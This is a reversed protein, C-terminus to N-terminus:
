NTYGNITAAYMWDGGNVRYFVAEVGDNDRAMGAVNLFANSVSGNARPSTVINVPRTVDKFSATFALNSAM